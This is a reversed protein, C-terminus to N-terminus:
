RSGSNGVDGVRGDTAARVRDVHRMHREWRQERSLDAVRARSLAHAPRQEAVLPATVHRPTRRPM